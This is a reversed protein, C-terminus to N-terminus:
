KTVKTKKMRERRPYNWLIGYSKCVFGLFASLKKLRPVDGKSRVVRCGGLSSFVINVMKKSDPLSLM